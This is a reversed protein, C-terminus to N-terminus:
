LEPVMEPYIGGTANIKFVYILGPRLRKYVVNGFIAHIGQSELKKPDNSLDWIENWFQDREALSLKQGIAAYRQPEDFPTQIAFGDEPRMKEGYVRRWLYMAREGGDMVMPETFKVILADFHAMDGEIEYEKQLVRQTMDQPDTEVFLIRTYLVDDRIEQGTVKAYGIQTETTLNTIAERLTTNEVLLREVTENVTLQQWMLYGGGAALAVVALVIVNKIVTLTKM